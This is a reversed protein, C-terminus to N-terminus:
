YSLKSVVRVTQGEDLKQVGLVVVRAGEPVGSAIYVFTADYSQVEVPVLKLRGAEEVTWLCPGRGRNLLATLPLQAVNGPAPSTITLTASMGLALSADAAPLSFRAAYTRTAADSIPALERLRAAYRKSPDSWLALTAKGQEVVDLLREPVAVAAQTEDLRAVRVAIQGPAVVQGPEIPAATVIGETEAILVSYDLANQTLERAREARTLRGRAEAVATTAREYAAQAQWGARRLEGGRKEDAEAQELATRAAKAEAEAQEHQLKFDTDDLRALQDGKKVNRGVDVFRRVVKGAVRFSLDSEIRPRIIAVFDRPPNRPAYHAATVLVPRGPAAEAKNAETQTCGALALM